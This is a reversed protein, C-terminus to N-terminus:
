RSHEMGGTWVNWTPENQRLLDYYIIPDTHSGHAFAIYRSDRILELGEHADIPKITACLSGPVIKFYYRQQTEVQLVLADEQLHKVGKQYCKVVVRHEGSAISFSTYYWPALLFIDSGDLAILYSPTNLMMSWYDSIDKRIIFIEAAGPVDSGAPLIGGAVRGVPAQGGACGPLQTCALCLILALQTCGQGYRLLRFLIEKTTLQRTMRNYIVDHFIVQHRETLHFKRTPKQKANLDCISWKLVM